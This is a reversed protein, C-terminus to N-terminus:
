HKTLYGPFTFILNFTEFSVLFYYLFVTFPFPPVKYGVYESIHGEITIVNKLYTFSLM